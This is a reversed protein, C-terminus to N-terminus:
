KVAIRLVADSRAGPTYIGDSRRAIIGAGTESARLSEASDAIQQVRVGQVRRRHFLQELVRRRESWDQQMLVEDGSLLLDAVFFTADDGDGVLEGDLVLARDVRRAFAALQEVITRQRRSIDRTGDALLRASDPTVYALVRSGGHWPEFTWAGAPPLRRAPTPEMPAIDAGARTSPSAPEAGGRRGGRNSRWVRDAGGTIEDMTRGSEVSTLTRATIDTGPEATADRHKILLWQPKDGRATRVLAFSGRLREGEFTFSLKGARLGRRVASEDDEGSRVEDPHYTGRDWLMVTGGGYEGKPITGEFTNYEMPHDEVQMALRKVSPDLSPGKPVAWSRMVGDLELRLDYHLHSAAHKQIVFQLSGRPSSTAADGAPEPTVDFDRKRRYETLQEETSTRARKRPARKRAPSM